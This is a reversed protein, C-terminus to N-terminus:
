SERARAEARWRQRKERRHEKLYPAYRAGYLASVIQGSEPDLIWEVGEQFPHAPPLVRLVPRPGEVLDRVSTIDRGHQKRYVDRAKDLLRARRETDVEDVAQLYSAKAYEDETVEILQRLFAATTELGDHDTRLKGVLGALYYPARPLSIAEEIIRAAKM